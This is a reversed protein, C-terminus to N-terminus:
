QTAATRHVAVEVVDGPQLETEENAALRLLGKETKRIIAIEPGSSERQALQSRLVGTYQIKEEVGQLKARLEGLKVGSDQLEGLLEIRRRDDLQELKRQVEDQQKKLQMLQVATQLKRSSSLLVARRADTVRPSILTGKSLLEL